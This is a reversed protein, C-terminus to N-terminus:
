TPIALQKLRGFLGHAPYASAEGVLSIASVRRVKFVKRRRAVKDFARYIAGLLMFVQTPDRESSWATFGAIDAFLVTCAPFLDAIPKQEVSTSTVVSAHDDENTFGSFSERDRLFSRLRRKPPARTSKTPNTSVSTNEAMHTEDSSESMERGQDLDSVTVRDGLESAARTSRTESATRSPRRSQITVERDQQELLRDRVRAPFLSKVIRFHRKAQEMVYEQRRNVLYDYVLFFLICIVFFLVVIIAYMTPSVSSSTAVWDIAVVCATGLDRLPVVDSRKNLKQDLVKTWWQSESVANGVGGGDGDGTGTGLFSVGLRDVEFVMREDSTIAMSVFANEGDVLINQLLYIWPITGLVVAVVTSSERDVLPYAITLRPEYRNGSRDDRRSDGQAEGYMVGLTAMGTLLAQDLEKYPDNNATCPHFDGDPLVPSVHWLALSGSSSTNILRGEGCTARLAGSSMDDNVLHDERYSHYQLSENVWEDQYTVSFNHWEMRSKDHVVPFMALTDMDHTFRVKSARAEFHPVSVFPWSEKRDQVHLQIDTALLDMGGLAGAVREALTESVRRIAVAADAQEYQRLNRATLLYVSTAVLAGAVILAGLVLGRAARIATAAERKVFEETEESDEEPDADDDEAGSAASANDCVLSAVHKNEEENGLSCSSARSLARATMASRGILATAM